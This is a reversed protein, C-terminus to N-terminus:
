IDGYLMLDVLDNFDMEEGALKVETRNILTNLGWGEFAGEILKVLDSTKKKEDKYSFESIYKDETKNDSGKKYLWKDPNKNYTWQFILNYERELLEEYRSTKQLHRDYSYETPLFKGYQNHLNRAALVALKMTMPMMGGDAENKDGKKRIESNLAEEWSIIEGKILDLAMHNYILAAPNRVVECGFILYTIKALDKLVNEELRKNFSTDM